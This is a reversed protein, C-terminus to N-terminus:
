PVIYLYATIGIIGACSCQVYRLGLTRRIRWILTSLCACAIRIESDFISGLTIATIAYAVLSNCCPSVIIGL